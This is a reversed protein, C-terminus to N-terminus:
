QQNRRTASIVVIWLISFWFGLNFLFEYLHFSVTDPMAFFLLPGLIPIDLLPSTTAWALPWGHERDSTGIASDISFPSLFFTVLVILLAIVFVLLFHPRNM